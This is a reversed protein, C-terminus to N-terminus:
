DELELETISGQNPDYQADYLFVFSTRREHINQMRDGPVDTDINFFFLPKTLAPDAREIAKNFFGFPLADGQAFVVLTGEVRATERGGGVRANSASVEIFMTNQEPAEGSPALFTTKPIGFIAELRRQLDKRFM